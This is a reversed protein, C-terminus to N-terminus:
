LLFPLKGFQTEERKARNYQSEIQNRTMSRDLKRKKKKKDGDGDLTKNIARMMPSLYDISFQKDNHCCGKHYLQTNGRTRAEKEEESLESISSSSFGQVGGSNGCNIRIQKYVKAEACRYLHFTLNTYSLVHLQV